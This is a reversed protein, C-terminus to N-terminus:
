VHHIFHRVDADDEVVLITEDGQQQGEDAVTGRASHNAAVDRSCTFQVATTGSGEQSQIHLHGGSQKVFGYVM